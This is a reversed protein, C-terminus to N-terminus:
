EAFKFWSILRGVEDKQWKKKKYIKKRETKQERDLNCFTNFIFLRTWIGTVVCLIVTCCLIKCLMTIIIYVAWASPYHHDHGGKLLTIRQSRSHSQRNNLVDIYTRLRYRDSNTISFPPNLILSPAEVLIFSLLRVAKAYLTTAANGAFGM